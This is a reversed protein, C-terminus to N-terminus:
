CRKQRLWRPRARIGDRNLGSRDFGQRDFGQRDYRTGNRHLGDSNFGASDWGDEDYTMKDYLDAVPDDSVDDTTDVTLMDSDAIPPAPPEGGAFRGGDPTGKRHRNPVHTGVVLSTVQRRRRSRVPTGTGAMDTPM